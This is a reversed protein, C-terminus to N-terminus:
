HLYHGFLFFVASILGFCKAKMREGRNNEMPFSDNTPPTQTQHMLHINIEIGQLGEKDTSQGINMPEYENINSAGTNAAIAESLAVENADSEVENGGTQITDSM